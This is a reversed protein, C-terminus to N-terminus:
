RDEKSFWTVTKKLGRLMSYEPTYGFAKRAKAIDALSHRIDGPNPPEYKISVERGALKMVARALDNVSIAKGAAINFNGVADSEAALVNARVIDEVFTFDRTQDGDGFVTLPKRSL